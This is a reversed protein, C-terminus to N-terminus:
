GCVRVQGDQLDVIKRNRVLATVIKLADDM